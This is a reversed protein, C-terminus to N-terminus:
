STARSRLRKTAYGAGALALLTLGGDLPVPTPTPPPGPPVVAVPEAPAVPAAPSAWDPVSGPGEAFAAPAAFLLAGVALLRISMATVTSHLFATVPYSRLKLRCRHLVFSENPNPIGRRPASDWGMM